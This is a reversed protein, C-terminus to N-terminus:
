RPPSGTVYYIAAMRLAEDAQIGIDALRLVRFPEKAHIVEENTDDVVLVTVDFSSTTRSHNRLCARRCTTEAVITFAHPAM